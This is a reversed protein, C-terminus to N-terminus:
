ADQDIVFADSDFIGSGANRVLCQRVNERRAEPQVIATRSHSEIDGLSYRLAIAPLDVDSIPRLAANLRLPAEM